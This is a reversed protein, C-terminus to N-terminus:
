NNKCFDKIFNAILVPVPYKEIETFSVKNNSIEDVDIIWFKTYIHRHSLKHVISNENYLVPTNSELGLQKLKDSLVLQSLTIEKPSEILPFEFLNAWIGKPPRKVLVTDNNHSIPVIYNYYVKKIKIKKLKVPLEKVRNSKYAQCSDILICNNCLPSQPKCHIAGFEMIAQNYTAPNDKDLLESALLAFEKKGISENIPTDINFVRSLVRFVNGDLVAKPEGFCISAIASATYDGVGKLSLLGNYNNPFLGNLERSVFKATAHLNRARSYYGLGQWLKLVEDENAKALDHVTPFANIFSLYYPMGQAVRTQQLMIESLWIKYPDTTNRWPMDRKNVLYWSILKKAIENM